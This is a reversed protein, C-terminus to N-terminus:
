VSVSLGLAQFYENSYFLQRTCAQAIMCDVVSQILDM